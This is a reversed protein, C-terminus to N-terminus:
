AAKSKAQRLEAPKQPVWKGKAMQCLLDAKQFPTLDARPLIAKCFQCDCKMSKGAASTQKGKRRAM